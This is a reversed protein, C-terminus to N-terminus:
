QSTPVLHLQPPLYPRQLSKQLQCNHPCPPGSTSNPPPPDWSSRRPESRHAQAPPHDARLVRRHHSRLPHSLRAPSRHDLRQRFGQAICAAHTMVAPPHAPSALRSRRPRVQPRPPQGFTNSPISSRPESSRCANTSFINPRVSATAMSPILRAHCACLQLAAHCARLAHSRSRRRRRSPVGCSAPSPAQSPPNPPDSGRDSRRRALAETSAM